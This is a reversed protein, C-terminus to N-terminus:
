RGCKKGTQTNMEGSEALVAFDGSVTELRLLSASVTGFLGLVTEVIRQGGEEPDLSQSQLHQV